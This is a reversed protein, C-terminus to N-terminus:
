ARGITVNRQGIVLRDGPIVLTRTGPFAGRTSGDAHVVETGNTSNRDVVYFEEGEVIFAFHTKSLSRTTDDIQVLAAEGLDGLVPNRGFVSTESVVTVAGDDWVLLAGQRGQPREARRTADSDEAEVRRTADDDEDDDDTAVFAPEDAIGGVPVIAEFAASDPLAEIVKVGSVMQAQAPKFDPVSDIVEPGETKVSIGDDSKASSDRPKAVATPATRVAVMVSGVARDHWGRRRADIVLFVLGVISLLTPVALATRLLAPWRGIPRYTVADVLRISMVRMGMTGRHSGAASAFGIALAYTLGLWATYAVFAFAIADGSVTDRFSGIILMVPVFLVTTPVLFTAGDIAAATARRGLGATALGHEDTM